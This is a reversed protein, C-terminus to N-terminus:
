NRIEITLWLFCFFQLQCNCNRRSLKDAPWIDEREGEEQSTAHPMHTHLLINCSSATAAAPWWLLPLTTAAANTSRVVCLVSFHSMPSWFWSCCCCCCCSVMQSALTLNTNIKYDKFYKHCPLYKVKAAAADNGRPLISSNFSFSTSFVVASLVQSHSVRYENEWEKKQSQTFNHKSLSILNKPFM